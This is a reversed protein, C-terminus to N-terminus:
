VLQMTKPGMPGGSPVGKWIRGYVYTAVARERGLYKLIGDRVLADVAERSQHTHTCRAGHCPQEVGWRALMAGAHQNLVCVRRREKSRPASPAYRFVRGYVRTEVRDGTQITEVRAM